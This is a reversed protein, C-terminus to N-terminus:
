ITFRELHAYRYKFKRGFLQQDTGFSENSTDTIVVPYFQEGIKEYVAASKLLDILGKFCEFSVWGSGIEIEQQVRKNLQLMSGNLVMNTGSNRNDVLLEAQEFEFNDTVSIKGSLGVAEFTGFSNRFYFQKSEKTFDPHLITFEKVESKRVLPGYLVQVDIKYIGTSDFPLTLTISPNLTLVYNWDVESLTLQWTILSATSPSPDGFAPWQIIASDAGNRYYARVYLYLSNDTFTSWYNLRIAQNYFVPPSGALRNLFKQDTYSTFHLASIATYSKLEPLGYPVYTVTNSTVSAPSSGGYYEEFVVKFRGSYTAYNIGDLYDPLQIQLLNFIIESLDFETWYYTTGSVIYTQNVAPIGNLTAVLTDATAVRYVKAILKYDAPTVGGSVFMSGGVKFIVKNGAPVIGSPQSNITIAM